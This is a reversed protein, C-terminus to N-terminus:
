VWRRGGAERARRACAGRAPGADRSARIAPLVARSRRRLRARPRGGRRPRGRALRRPPLEAGGVRRMAAAAVARPCSSLRPARARPARAATRSTSASCDRRPPRPSSRGHARALPARRSLRAQRCRGDAGPWSRWSRRPARASRRATDGWDVGREFRHSSETHLGHRRAARRVGRPDFYACELLVRQRTSRSDRQEGRGDRGRAGGPRRRRLHRPRRGSRGSSATSRRSRRARPRARRVVIAGGRVRDLDFAHMPHGLELMVLNTVDVVNSISASASRRSGGACTSRRLRSACTSSRPPATTRVASPTTSRRRDRLEDLREDRTASRTAGAGAARLARRLARRGRARARRSRSRRPPQAHPRDRPDHRARAPVRRRPAHGARRHGAPLVLIGDGDDGLGLEAESCLMGESTVGAIPRREITM